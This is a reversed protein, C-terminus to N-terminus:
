RKTTLGQQTSFYGALDRIEKETLPKAMASMVPNDRTGNHYDTLAQVLYGYQQDALRPTEPTTPKNGDPGHCAACAEDAKRKGIGDSAVTTTTGLRADSAYYAALDAMDQDSLTAAIGRMSPHKRAGTKYDQLSKVIYAAQQGGIKPVPYVQPYATRYDVIGHCGECMQARAKGRTPDGDAWASASLMLTAVVGLALLGNRQMMDM